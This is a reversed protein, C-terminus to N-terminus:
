GKGAEMRDILWSSVVSIVIVVPVIWWMRRPVQLEFWAEPSVWALLHYGLAIASLALIMATPTSLSVAKKGALRVGEVGTEESEDPDQKGLAERRSKWFLFLGSGMLGVGVAWVLVVVGLALGQADAGVELGVVLGSM